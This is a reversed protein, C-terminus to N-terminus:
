EEPSGSDQELFIHLLQDQKGHFIRDIYIEQGKLRYFVRYDGSVLSRYNEDRREGTVDSFPRGIKPFMRLCDISKEIGEVTKEANEKCKWALLYDWIRDLDRLAEASYFIESSM